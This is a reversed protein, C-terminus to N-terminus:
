WVEQVAAAAIEALSVYLAGASTGVSSLKSYELPVETYCPPFSHIMYARGSPVPGEFPCTFRVLVGGTILGGFFARGVRGTEDRLFIPRDHIAWELCDKFFQQGGASIGGSVAGIVYPGFGKVLIGFTFGASGSLAAVMPYLGLREIYDWTGPTMGHKLAQYSIITSEFLLSITASVIMTEVLTYQGTPDIQMVPNSNVFLYKHITLPDHLFGEFSDMTWFRGSMPNM